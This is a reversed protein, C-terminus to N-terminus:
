PRVRLREGDGSTPAARFVGPVAGGCSRCLGGPAIGVPDVAYLDRRILPEGCDHCDTQRAAHGPVNGLYVYRLGEELGIARTRELTEVPTPDLHALDLYPFFRTLHWPTLPGLERAIWRALGRMEVPDDNVGPVLNTVCEVHIGLDHRARATGELIPEFRAIGGTVAKYARRSFGKIDCRYADLVPGILDLAEPTAYGNTVYVTALGHDKALRAAELTHELWIVPENYTWALGDAGHELALEVQRAPSLPELNPETFSAPSGGGGGPALVPRDHAIAGNQCGPCAFNCGRTGASLLKAGPLFHYLPKKEVPDIVVSSTLGHILTHLVGDRNERTRCWATRGPRVRCRILCVNCVVTGPERAADDPEWLMAEM